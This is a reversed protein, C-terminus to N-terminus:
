KKSRSTSLAIALSPTIRIYDEWAQSKWRGQRQIEAASWGATAYYTAGGSRLSHGGYKEGFSKRLERIFWTRTPLTGAATIFLHPLTPHRADRIALYRSLISTFASSTASAVFLLHSGAWKRDAKHYPLHVSFYEASHQVTSRLPLKDPNRFRITSPLTLEAGRACSAFGLGVMALFLIRDYSTSPQSLASQFSFNLVSFPLPPARKVSRKWHKRGGIITDKVMRSDRVQKWRDPGM